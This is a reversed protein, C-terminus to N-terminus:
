AGVTEEVLSRAARDAELVAEVSDVPADPQREVALSVLEGIEPFSIKKELFLRVAAENAGNAAAPALGGRQLAKVCVPLCRFAERDPEFFTLTGAEWLKLEAM